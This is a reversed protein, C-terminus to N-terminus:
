LETKGQSGQSGEAEQEAEDAKEEFKSAAEVKKETEM